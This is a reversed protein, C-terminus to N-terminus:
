GRNRWWMQFVMLVWLQKRHNAKGAFHAQMLQQVYRADFFGHADLSTKSLLDECLGRLEHKLWHSLPIGFGKKPRDIIMDPIKGRAVKKLIHKTKWGRLKFNQPLGSIYDVVRYDLFPSRAELSTYMSARDVKMLIDDVLYTRYYTYLLRNFYGADMPLEDLWRDIIELGHTGQLAKKMDGSLLKEKESPLFAGLWLTSVHKKELEFGRLFQKVKFDFSINKDSTPLLNAMGAMAGIMFKPMASMIGALRDSQFTPYGALLEDSGDGGLAVTVQERTFCSLLHTPILSADAFPEDLKQYIGSVLDLTDSATLIKSYHETGLQRAVASAYDSEDYSKESFGISFTKIKRASNKQAYYAIISSDLGGSLFVGLPVDSMMRIRTADELLDDLHATAKEFNSETPHFDIIYYPQQAVIRGNEWVFYSGPELKHVGQLITNPTPVYEFTLYQQVAQLNIEDKCLPHKQIAKLESAFLLTSGVVSYFLPKKGMRDRAVFLQQKRFDWLAFAFMGNLMPLMAPGHEQYLYVLVETDSTTRFTYKGTRQLGEKLAEFNYIEGNFTIAVSKDHSFFPQHADASLDMISLRAHALGVGDQLFTGLYDPGRYAISQIMAQLQEANGDGIFGAIGCM